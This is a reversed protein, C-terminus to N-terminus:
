GNATPRPPPHMPNIEKYYCSPGIIGLFSHRHFAMLKQLPRKVSLAQRKETCCVVEIM